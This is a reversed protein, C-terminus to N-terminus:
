VIQFPREVQYAVGPELSDLDIKEGLVRPAAGGFPTATVGTARAGMARLTAGTPILFDALRDRFKEERFALKPLSLREPRLFRQACRNELFARFGRLRSPIGSLVRRAIRVDPAERAVREEARIEYRAVLSAFRTCDLQPTSLNPDFLPPPTIDAPMLLPGARDLLATLEKMRLPLSHFFHIDDRAIGVPISHCFILRSAALATYHTRLRGVDCILTAEGPDETALLAGASALAQRSNSIAILELDLKGILESYRRIETVHGVSLSLQDRGDQTVNEYHRFIFIAPYHLPNDGRVKGVLDRLAARYAKPEPACLVHYFRMTEGAMCGVTQRAGPGMQDLLRNVIDLVKGPQPYTACFMDMYIPHHIREVVELLDEGEHGALGAIEYGDREPIHRVEALLVVNGDLYLGLCRELPHGDWSEGTLSPTLGESM